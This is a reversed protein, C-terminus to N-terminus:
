TELCDSGHMVTIRLIIKEGEERIAVMWVKNIRVRNFSSMRNDRGPITTNNPMTHRKNPMSMLKIPCNCLISLRPKQICSRECALKDSHGLSYSLSQITTTYRPVVHLDYMTKGPWQNPRFEHVSFPGKTDQTAALDGYTLADINEDIYGPENIVM